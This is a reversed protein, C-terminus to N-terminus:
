RGRGTAGTGPHPISTSSARCGLSMTVSTTSPVWRSSGSGQGKFARPHTSTMPSSPQHCGTKSACSPRLRSRTAFLSQDLHAPAVVTSTVNWRPSGPTPTSPVAGSTVGEVRTDADPRTATEDGHGKKQDCPGKEEGRDLTKAYVGGPGAVVNRVELEAPGSPLWVISRRRNQVLSLHSISWPGAMAGISSDDSDIPHLRHFGRSKRTSATTSM